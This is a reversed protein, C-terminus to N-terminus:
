EDEDNGKKDVIKNVKDYIFGTIKSSVSGIAGTVNDVISFAGNLQNAKVEVNDLIGNVKKLTKCLKIVFIVLVIVLIILCIFLIVPLVENLNVIM